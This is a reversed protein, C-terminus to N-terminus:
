AINNMEQNEEIKYSNKEGKNYKYEAQVQQEM